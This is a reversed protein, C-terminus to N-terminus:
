RTETCIELKTAMNSDWNTWLVRLTAEEQLFFIPKPNSHKM